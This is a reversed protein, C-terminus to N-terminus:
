TQRGGEPTHVGYVLTRLMRPSLTRIASARPVQMAQRLRALVRYIRGQSQCQYISRKSHVPQSVRVVKFHMHFPSTAVGGPM